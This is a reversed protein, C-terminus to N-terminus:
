VRTCVVVEDLEATHFSNTSSNSSSSNSSAIVVDEEELRVDVYITRQCISFMFHVIGNYECRSMGLFESLVLLLGTVIQSYFLLKSEFDSQTDM